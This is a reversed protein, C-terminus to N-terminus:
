SKLRENANLVDTEVAKCFADFEMDHLPATNILRFLEQTQDESLAPVIQLNNNTAQYYSTWDDFSMGYTFRLLDHNADAHRASWLLAVSLAAQNQPGDKPLAFVPTCASVRGGLDASRMDADNASPLPAWNFVPYKKAAYIFPTQGYRMALNGLSLAPNQKDTVADLDSKGNFYYGQKANLNQLLLINEKTQASHSVFRGDEFNLLPTGMSQLFDTFDHAEYGYVTVKDGDTKTAEALFKSFTDMNWENKAALKSPDTKLNEATYWLCRAVGAPAFFREGQDGYSLLNQNLYHTETVEFSQMLATASSTMNMAYPLQSPAFSLLDIQTGSLMALRQAALASAGEKHVVHINTGYKENLRRLWTSESVAGNKDYYFFSDEPAAYYVTLTKNKLEKVTDDGDSFGRPLLSRNETATSSLLPNSALQTQGAPTSEGKEAPAPAPTAVPVSPTCCCFLCLIMILLTARIIKKM